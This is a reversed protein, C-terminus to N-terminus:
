PAAGTALATGYYFLASLIMASGVGMLTGGGVRDRDAGEATPDAAASAHMSVGWAVAAAGAVGLTGSLVKTQQSVVPKNELVVFKKKPKSVIPSVGGKLKGLTVQTAKQVGRLLEMPSRGVLGHHRVLVKGSMAGILALELSFGTGFSSLKSRLLYDVKAARALDMRCDEDDCFQGFDRLEFDVMTSFDDDTVAELRYSDAVAQSITAMLGSKVQEDVSPAHIPLVAVREASANHGILISSIVILKSLCGIVFREHKLNNGAM